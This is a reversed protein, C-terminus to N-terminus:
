VFDQTMNLLDRNWTEDRYEAIRLKKKKKKNSENKM